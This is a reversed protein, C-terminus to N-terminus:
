SADPDLEPEPVLGPSRADDNTSNIALNIAYNGWSETHSFYSWIFKLWCPNNDATLKTKNVYKAHV